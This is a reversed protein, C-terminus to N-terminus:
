SKNIRFIDDIFFVLYPLYLPYSHMVIRGINYGKTTLLALILLVFFASVDSVDFFSQRRFKIVLFIILLLIVVPLINFYLGKISMTNFLSSQFSSIFYKPNTQVENGPLRLGYTVVLYILVGGCSFLLQYFYGFKRHNKISIFFRFIFITAFIVSIKENIAISIFALPLFVRPNKIYFVLLSIILIVFPDIGIKSIYNSLFFSLVGVIFSSEVRANFKKRAIAYIILATVVLSVYSVFSLAQTAKLYPVDANSLNTFYYVPLLYYFPIAITVSLVRYVYTPNPIQGNEGILALLYPAYDDRPVTNFVATRYIEFFLPSTILFLLLISLLVFTKKKIM